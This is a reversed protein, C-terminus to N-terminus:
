LGSMTGELLRNLQRDQKVVDPTSLEEMIFNKIHIFLSNKHRHLHQPLCSVQVLAQSRFIQHPLRFDSPWAQQDEKGDGDEKETAEMKTAEKEAFEEKAVEKEAAEKRV